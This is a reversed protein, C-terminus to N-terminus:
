QEFEQHAGSAPMPMLVRLLVEHMEAERESTLLMGDAVVKSAQETLRAVAEVVYERISVIACELVALEEPSPNTQTSQAAIEDFLQQERESRADEDEEEQEEEAASADIEDMEDDDNLKGKNKKNHHHHRDRPTSSSSSSSSSSEEESSSGGRKTKVSHQQQQQQRSQPVEDDRFVKTSIKRGVPSSPDAATDEDSGDPFPPPAAAALAPDPFRQQQHQVPEPIGIIAKGLMDLWQHKSELSAARLTLAMSIIKTAAGTLAAAAEQAESPLGSQTQQQQQEAVPTIGPPLTIRFTTHEENSEEETVGSIQACTLDATGRAPQEEPSKFYWIRKQRLSLAFWRRQWLGHRNKKELWGMYFESWSPPEEEEEEQQQIQTKLPPPQAAQLQLKKKSLSSSPGELKNLTDQLLQRYADIQRAAQQAAAAALLNQLRTKLKEFMHPAPFEVEAHLNNSLQQWTNTHWTNILSEAQVLLMDQIYDHAAAKKSKKKSNSKQTAAVVAVELMVKHLDALIKRLPAEYLELCARLLGRVGEEPALLWSQYGYCTKLIHHADTGLVSDIDVESLATRITDPHVAHSIRSKFAGTSCVTSFADVYNEAGLTVQFVVFLLPCM